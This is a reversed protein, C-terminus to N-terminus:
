RVRYNMVVQKLHEKSDPITAHSLLFDICYELFLAINRERDTYIGLEMQKCLGLYLAYYFTFLYDQDKKEVYGDRICPDFINNDREQISKGMISRYRADGSTMTPSPFLALYADISGLIVNTKESFFVHTYIEPKEFSFVAYIKWTLLFRLYSPHNEANLRGLADFYEMVIQLLTFSLLQEVDTFYNYMTASNYGARDSVKRITVADIGETEIIKQAADMFYQMMRRQRLQKKREDM